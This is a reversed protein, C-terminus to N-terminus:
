PLKKFRISYESKNKIPSRMIVKDGKKLNLNRAIEKPIQMFFHGQTRNKPKSYQLTVEKEITEVFDGREM